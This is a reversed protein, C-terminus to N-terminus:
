ARWMWEDAGFDEAPTGGGATAFQKSKKLWTTFAGNWNAARRDHTEAHLRFNEAEDIVDVGLEKARAIHDATPAWSAPLPMEPKKKAERARSHSANTSTSTSTTTSHGRVSPDAQGKVSPDSSPDPTPDASPDRVDIGPSALLTALKETAKWGSWEPRVQRLRQVEFAVVARLRGSAVGAWDQAMTVAMNPQKLVGDYKVFSRILIEETEEDVVVFFRRALEDAAARIDAATTGAAMQALRGPRWDCVGARNTEPHTLLLEYLWQADRSLARWDADGWMDLRINAHERAM